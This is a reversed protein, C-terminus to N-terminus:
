PKIFFYYFLVACSVVVVLWLLASRKADATAAALSAELAPESRVYEEVAEKAEKLGINREMRVIKIAEIKKGQHLAAIAAVPLPQATDPKRHVDDMTLEGAIM